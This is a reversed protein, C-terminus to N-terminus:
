GGKRIRFASHPIRFTLIVSPLRRSAIEDIREYLVCRGKRFCSEDPSEGKHEKADKASQFGSAPDAVSGSLLINKNRM